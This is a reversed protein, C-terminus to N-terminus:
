TYFETRIQAAGGELIKIPFSPTSLLNCLPLFKEHLRSFNFIDARTKFLGFCYINLIYKCFDNNELQSQLVFETSKEWVDRHISHLECFEQLDVCDEEAAFQGEVTDSRHLSGLRQYDWASLTKKLSAM